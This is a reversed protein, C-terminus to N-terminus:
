SERYAASTARALNKQHKAIYDKVIDKGTLGAALYLDLIFHLVDAMEERYNSIDKIGRSDKWPKWNVEALVEHLEDTACLVVDRIYTSVAEPDDPDILRGWVAEVDRQNALLYDMGEVAAALKRELWDEEETRLEAAPLGHVVMNDLATGLAAKQEEENDVTNEKDAPCTYDGDIIEQATIGQGCRSCICM